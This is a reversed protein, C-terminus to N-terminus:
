WRPARDAVHALLARATRAPDDSDLLARIVAVGHAGAAFCSAANTEDVGGLAYVKASGALRTAREVLAVGTPPGKGPSAFVPSVLVADAGERCAASIRDEDHAAATVWRLGAAAADVVSEDHPVHVGDAGIERALALRDGPGGLNVFLSAGAARTAGRLAEAWTRTEDESLTKARLQVGLLGPGVAEAARGVVEAARALPVRPDTVLLLRPLTM